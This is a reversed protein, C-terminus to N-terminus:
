DLRVMGKGYDVLHDDDILQEELRAAKGKVQHLEAQKQALIAAQAAKKQEAQLAERKQQKQYRATVQDKLLQDVIEKQQKQEELLRNADADVKAKAAAADADIKAKAAAIADAKEKAAAKAADTKVKNAAAAEAAAKDRIRGIRENENRNKITIFEKLKKYQSYRNYLMICLPVVFLLLGFGIILGSPKINVKNDSNTENYKNIEGYLIGGAVTTMIGIILISSNYINNESLLSNQGYCKRNCLWCGVPLSVLITSLVLLLKLCAKFTASASFNDPLESMNACVFISLGTIFLFLMFYTNDM